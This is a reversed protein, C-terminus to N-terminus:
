ALEVSLICHGDALVGESLACPFKSSTIYTIRVLQTRGTYADHDPDFERLLMLDGVEFDRDDNRRLEHRKAQSQIAEFLSPWSKLEHTKM